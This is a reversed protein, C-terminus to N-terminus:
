RAEIFAKLSFKSPFSQGFIFITISIIFIATPIWGVSRVYYLYVAADGTRRNTEAQIDEETIKSSSPRETYRPPAEYLHKEPTFNWDPLPLDFNSVYGGSGNLKDFSGQEVISGEKDLAVIHDCYPLRKAVPWTDNPPLLIAIHLTAHVSRIFFRHPCDIQM